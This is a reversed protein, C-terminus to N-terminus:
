VVSKRDPLLGVSEGESNEEPDADGETGDVHAATDGLSESDKVFWLLLANIMKFTLAVYLVVSLEAFTWDNSQTAFVVIAMVPGALAGVWFVVYLYFYFKTRDGTPISDAFLALVPGDVVGKGFGWLCMAVAWVWFALTENNGHYGAKTIVCYFTMASAFTYAFTGTRAAPTRGYKDSLDGMPLATLLKTLGLCSELYGVRVNKDGTAMYLYATLTAGFGISESLGALLVIALIVKVNHNMAPKGEGSTAPGPLTSSGSRRRKPKGSADDDAGLPAYDFGSGPAEDSATRDHM